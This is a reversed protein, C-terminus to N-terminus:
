LGNRCGEVIDAWAESLMGDLEMASLDTGYTLLRLALDTSAMVKFSKTELQGRLIWEGDELVLQHNESKGDMVFRVKMTEFGGPRRVDLSHWAGPGGTEEIHGLYIEAAEDSMPWAVTFYAPASRYLREQVAEGQDVQTRAWPNPLQIAYGSALPEYDVIGAPLLAYLQATM